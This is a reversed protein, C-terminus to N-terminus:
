RRRASGNYVLRPKAKKATREPNPILREMYDFGDLDGCALTRRAHGRDRAARGGARRGPLQHRHRDRGRAGHPRHPARLGRAQAAPRLQHRALHEDVDIGRAVIDTAVLVRYTGDKFGDLAQQRQAQSRNGHIRPAAHHRSRELHRLATPATSPAPSSSCGTSSSEELLRVLLDTKQPKPWRTSPRSVVTEVPTGRPAVEVRVPDTSPRGAVRMVDDSLTASFLLNQRKAPLLSIIRRVDPWFGMDLMRDAEDLVLIEVASLDM